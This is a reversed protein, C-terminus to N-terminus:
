MNLHQQAVVLVHLKHKVLPCTKFSNYTKSTASSLFHGRVLFLIYMTISHIFHGCVTFITSGLDFLFFTHMVYNNMGDSGPGRAGDEARGLGFIVAREYEAVVKNFYGLLM